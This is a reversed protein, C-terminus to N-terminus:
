YLFITNVVIEVISYEFDYTLYETNIQECEIIINYVTEIPDCIVFRALNNLTKRWPAFWALWCDNLNRFQEFFNWHLVNSSKKAFNNDASKWLIPNPTHIALHGFMPNLEGM